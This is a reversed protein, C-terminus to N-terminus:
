QQKLDNQVLHGPEMLIKQVESDKFSERVEKYTDGFVIRIVQREDVPLLHSAKGELVGVRSQTNPM